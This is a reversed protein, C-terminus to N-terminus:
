ENDGELRYIGYTVVVGYRNTKTAYRTSINYGEKRLNYIKATIRTIGFRMFADWSTIEGYEQLYELIMQEQTKRNM